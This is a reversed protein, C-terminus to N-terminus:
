LQVYQATAVASAHRHSDRRGGHSSSASSMTSSATHLHHSHLHHGGTLSQTGEQWLTSGLAQVGSVGALTATRVAMWVLKFSLAAPMLLNETATLVPTAAHSVAQGLPTSMWVDAPLLALNHAADVLNQREIVFCANRHLRVCATKNNRASSSNGTLHYECLLYAGRRELVILPMLPPLVPRCTNDSPSRRAFAELAVIDKPQPDMGIPQYSILVRVMGTVPPPTQAQQRKQKSVPPALPDNKNYAAMGELEEEQDTQQGQLSIPLWADLIGPMAKGDASEGLCLDTVDLSGAGILRADGKPMGPLFNEMATSDEDVRIALHIRRGDSVLAGKRLLFDFQCNEWVPNNDSPVIPSVAAPSRAATKKSSAAPKRDESMRHATSATAVPTEHPDKYEFDFTCFSSCAGHAKSLGLHKVPGLALASWYSRQFDAAELLRVRFVGIVGNQHHLQRYPKDRFAASGDWHIKDPQSRTSLRAKTAEYTSSEEMDM